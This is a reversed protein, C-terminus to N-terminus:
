PVRNLMAFLLYYIFVCQTTLLSSSNYVCPDHLVMSIAFLLYQVTSLRSLYRDTDYYITLTHIDFMYLPNIEDHM